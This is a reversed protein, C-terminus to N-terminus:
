DQFVLRARPHPAHHPLGRFAVVPRVHQGGIQVEVFADSPLRREGRHLSQTFGKRRQGFTLTPPQGATKTGDQHDKHKDQDDGSRVIRRLGRRRRAGGTDVVVRVEVVEPEVVEVMSDVVVVLTAALAQGSVPCAPSSPDAPDGIKATLISLM